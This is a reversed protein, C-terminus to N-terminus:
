AAPQEQESSVLLAATVSTLVLIGGRSDLVRIRAGPMHRFRHACAVVNSWIDTESEVHLTKEGISQRDPGIIKMTFKM